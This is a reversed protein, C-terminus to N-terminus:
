KIHNNQRDTVQVVNSNQRNMLFDCLLKNKDVLASAKDLVPTNVADTELSIIFPFYLKLM